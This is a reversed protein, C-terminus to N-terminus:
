QAMYRKDGEWVEKDFDSVNNIAPKGDFTDM